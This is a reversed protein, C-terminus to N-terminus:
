PQKSLIGIGAANTLRNAAFIMAGFAGPRPNRRPPPHAVIPLVDAGRRAWLLPFVHVDMVAHVVAAEVKGDPFQDFFLGDAKFFQVVVVVGAGAIEGPPGGQQLLHEGLDAGAAKDFRRQVRVPRALEDVKAFIDVGVKVQRKNVIRVDIDAVARHDAGVHGDVGARVGDRRLQAGPLVLEVLGHADAAVAPQARPDDHQGADCDSIARDDARAAADGVVLRRANFLSDSFVEPSDSGGGQMLLYGTGMVLIGAIMLIYNTRDFAFDFMKKNESQNQSSNTKPNPIAM